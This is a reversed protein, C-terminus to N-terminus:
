HGLPKDAIWGPERDFKREHKEVLEDFKDLNYSERNLLIFDESPAGCKPCKVPAGEGEHVYGCTACKWKKKGQM